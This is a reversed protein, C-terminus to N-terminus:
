SYKLPGVELPLSPFFTPSPFPSPFPTLLAGRLTLGASSVSIREKRGRREKNGAREGRGTGGARGDGM